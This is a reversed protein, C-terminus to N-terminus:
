WKWKTEEAADDDQKKRGKKPSEQEEKVSQKRSGHKQVSVANTCAHMAM